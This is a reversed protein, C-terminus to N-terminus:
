SPVPTPPPVRRPRRFSIQEWEGEEFVDLDPNRSQFYRVIEQVLDDPTSAASTLGINTVGELWSEDIDDVSEVRRATGNLETALELLRM